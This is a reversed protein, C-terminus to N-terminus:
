QLRPSVPANSGEAPDHPGVGLQSAQSGHQSAETKMLGSFMDREQQAKETMKARAYAKALNFHVEPSAPSLRATMELERISSALDGGELFSRGLLYHADVSNPALLLAKQAWATAGASDHQRLAISALRVCPLESGPSISMEQQMQAAARDFQSLAILATGYAYHLFPTAPYRQILLTLQPFATDYQSELLLSEIRGADAVLKKESPKVDDPFAAQRLLVLGLAFEVQEALPGSATTASSLIPGAQEFRGAHVLLVGFTYKALALSDSSASLGLRSGRDLHILANDFDKTAFESLGLLAWGTGSEPATALWAKLDIIAAPYKGATYEEMARNWRQQSAEPANEAKILTNGYLLVIREEPAENSRASSPVFAREASAQPGKGASQWAQALVSHATQDDPSIRVAQQAAKLADAVNGQHLELRSLEIWPLPSAPSIKAEERFEEGARKDNGAAAAAVGYAYHIYPLDPHDHVLAALKAQQGAGAAMAEGATQVVAERSPDLQSPLLPIRLAALGLAIKAQQSSTDQGFTEMLFSSAHEFQGERVCLLGLHYNSVRAIENDKIGLSRAKNLHVFAHDYDATEFESLGLLSWAAGLGPAIDVVQQFTVKAEAFRDSSYELMGLNWMGETWDPRQDLARRYDRIADEINGAQGEELAQKELLDIDAVAPPAGNQAVPPVQAYVQAISAALAIAIPLWSARFVPIPM